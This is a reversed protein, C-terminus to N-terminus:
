AARCNMMPSGIRWEKMLRKVTSCRTTGVRDLDVLKGAASLDGYGM